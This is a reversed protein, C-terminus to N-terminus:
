YLEFKNPIFIIQILKEKFYFLTILIICLYHHKYFKNKFILYYYLPYFVIDWIWSNVHLEGSRFQIIFSIFYLASSLIIYINKHRKIGKQADFYLYDIRNINDNVDSKVKSKKSRIKLIIYPIFLLLRSIITGLFIIIIHHTFIVGKIAFLSQLSLSCICGVIIPIINKDIVGLNIFSM